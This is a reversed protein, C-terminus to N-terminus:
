DSPWPDTGSPWSPDALWEELLREFSPAIVRFCMAKPHYPYPRNLWDDVDWESEPLRQLETNFEIVRGATADSCDICLYCGNGTWVAPLLRDPWEDTSLQRYTKELDCERRDIGLLGISPVGNVVEQLMQRLSDPLDFGLQKEAKALRAETVPPWLFIGRPDTLLRHEFQEFLPNM